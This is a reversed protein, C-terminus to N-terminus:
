FREDGGSTRKIEKESIGFLRLYIEDKYHLFSSITPPWKHYLEVNAIYHLVMKVAIQPSYLNLVTKMQGFEKNMFERHAVQNHIEYVSGFFLVLERPGFRPATKSVENRVSEISEYIAEIYSKRNTTKASSLWADVSEQLVEFEKDSNVVEALQPKFLVRQRGKMEGVIYLGGKEFEVLGLSQLTNEVEPLELEWRSFKDYLRDEDMASYVKGDEVVTESLLFFYVALLKVTLFDHSGLVSDHEPTLKPILNM